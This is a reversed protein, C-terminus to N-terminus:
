NTFLSELDTVPLSIEFQGENTEVRFRDGVSSAVLYDIKRASKLLIHGDLEVTSGSILVLEEPRRVQENAFRLWALDFDSAFRATEVHSTTKGRLLLIDHKRHFNVEFARGGLAEFERVEPKVGAPATEPLLFTILEVPGNSPLSFTFVPAEERKGYCHSVWGSERVWEGREGFIAVNLVANEKMARLVHDKGLVPEVNSDFHLSTKIQHAGLADVHDRILWYDRKLFLIERYHDPHNQRGLIYDFRAKSIWRSASCDAITKWSFPGDPISSSEDDVTLTNHAASVRFSDRLEKSATYTYTGPDILLPRGKVALEFSLADAHAHGCNDVGHHGCDFFMYNADPQWGDRMVYYGSNEFGISRKAPEFAALRDLKALAEPGLLWLTEDATEEAAFKYDGRNFVAAGTCLTARFDNAARHDLKVLRGGDDDGVMPTRGDPRKVYMLFDLLQQLKEDLRAPSQEENANLLIRLHLYFDTTYRHYYTSQEFYAGDPQVHKDLQDLLIRLGTKRWRASEKFEPLITGLYFLGLAEGTLHTNPSFYTSLYTELHLANLYLFKLIGLFTEATLSESHRFFYLAWLWAISRFSVELSSAWNIGLKPPNQEIWSNIHAVFTQAYREDRTLWYAQGLTAFHQHRNLEWVIKKDGFLSSDLYNLRSWHILPARKGAVPELHWDIPTGFNLRSFGLLDFHGDTIQEAGSIVGSEPWRKRFEGSTTGPDDFAPFFKPGSRERFYDRLELPSQFGSEALLSLFASDSGLRARSFLGHRERLAALAQLGRVRLEDFSTHRLKQVKSKM